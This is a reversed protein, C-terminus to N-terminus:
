LERVIRFGVRASRTGAAVALRHASRVQDPASGWSGGRIVRRECGPNIWAESTRPARIYNDHWCDAVWESLNGDIDYVGFPNAPFSRVPAPGWFGDRYDRFALGWSRKSPSRDGDGTVNTIVKEPDGEGWWYRTTSGARLVYEFEAESALRYTKGTRESLWKAYAEADNWSVNLVPMKDSARNGAYDRQWDAGRRDNMRGTSEDYVSGTGAREADTVYGTARVFERFQGVTIETQGMAFGLAIDVRHAPEESDRHGASGAASGMIFNGAPIVVVPPAAGTTDLFRDSFVQGPSFSAYLRANRLDRNFDDLGTLDTSIAQAQEGLRAALDANGAELASRAQALVTEGRQRRLGEIQSRTDLLAKSGPRITSAEVLVADAGQFDDQAAAALARDLYGKEIRGLGEDAIRNEPDIKLAKRYVALANDEGSGVLKGQKLLRAADALMPMVERLTKLRTQLRTLENDSHPLAAFERAFREATAEDGRELAALSWDRVAGGIRRLANYAAVNGPDQKLVERYLAVANDDAPEFLKDEDELRQASALLGVVEETMPSPPGMALAEALSTGVQKDAGDAPEGGPKVADAFWPRGPAAASTETQLQVQPEAHFIGPFFRYVLAFMLAAIGLAGGLNRQRNNHETGPM